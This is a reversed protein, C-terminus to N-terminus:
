QKPITVTLIAAHSAVMSEWRITVKLKNLFAEQLLHFMAYQTGVLEGDLNPVLGFVKNTASDLQITVVYRKETNDLGKQNRYDNISISQITGSTTHPEAFTVTSFVIMGLCGMLCVKMNRM